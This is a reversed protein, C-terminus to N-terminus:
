TDFKFFSINKISVNIPGEEGFVLNVQKIKQLDVPAGLPTFVRNNIPIRTEEWVSSYTIEHRVLNGNCDVLDLYLPNSASRGAIQISAISHSLDITENLTSFITYGPFTTDSLELTDNQITYSAGKFNSLDLETVNAYSIARIDTFLTVPLNELGPYPTYLGFEKKIVYNSLIFDYVYNANQLQSPPRGGIIVVTVNDDNKLLEVVRDREDDTIRLCNFGRELWIPERGSEFYILPGIKAQQTEFVLLRDAAQTNRMIYSSITRITSYDDTFVEGMGMNYNVSVYCLFGLLLIALLVLGRKKVTTLKRSLSLVGFSSLISLPALTEAYEHYFGPGVLLGYFLLVVTVWAVLLPLLNCRSITRALSKPQVLNLTTLFWLPSSSVFYGFLWLHRLDTQSAVPLLDSYAQVTNQYVMPQLAGLYGFSFVFLATPVALGLLAYILSKTEFYGKLKWFVLCVSWLSFYLVATQRTLLALGVLAGSIVLNRSDNTLRAKVLFYLAGLEFVIVYPETLVLFIESLPLSSFISFLISALLAIRFKNTLMRTIYFILISSLVSVAVVLLRAVFLDGGAASLIANIVFILPPKNVPIDRYIVTGKALLRGILLYIGEDYGVGNFWLLRLSVTPLVSTILV